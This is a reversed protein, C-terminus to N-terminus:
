LYMLPMYVIQLVISFNLTPTSFSVTELSLTIGTEAVILLLWLKLFFDSLKQPKTTLVLIAAFFAQSIGIYLLPILM